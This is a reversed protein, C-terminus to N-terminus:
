IPNILKCIEYHLTESGTQIWEEVDQDIGQLKYRKLLLKSM